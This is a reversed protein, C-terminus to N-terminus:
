TRPVETRTGTESAKQMADIVAHSMLAERGSSLPASGSDLTAAFNELVTRHWDHTFAMPDAGGGTAANAGIEETTGDIRTLKLVGSELHASAKTGTITITESGGPFSATTAFLTGICGRTTEFLAGAWDEAELQHIPTKRMMAQVHQFPGLMWLALDLTHIAQTIMVGGGDRAYTGRGPTNYYAQDRWWPIRIEASVIDGLQGADVANKLARSAARARHQFVIGLPLQAAEFVEVVRRAAALDREVPKEMLVPKGAAALREAFPLRADPPTTLVVFDVNPDSAVVDLSDYVHVTHGIEREAREAFAQTKAPDRALIGTLTVSQADRLAALHTDAVMGLGILVVNKM